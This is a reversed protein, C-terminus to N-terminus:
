ARNCELCIWLKDQIYRGDIKNAYHEGKDCWEISPIPAQDRVESGDMQITIREGTTIQIIELEAM